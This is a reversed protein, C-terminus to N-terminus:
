WLDFAREVDACYPPRVRRKRAGSSSRRAAAGFLDRIRHRLYRQGAHARMRIRRVAAGGIALLRERRSRVIALFDGDRSGVDHMMAAKVTASTKTPGPTSLLKDATTQSTKLNTATEM